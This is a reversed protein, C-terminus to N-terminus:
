DYDQIEWVCVCVVVVVESVESEEESTSDEEEEIRRRRRRRNEVIKVFWGVVVLNFVVLIDSMVITTIALGTLIRIGKTARGGGFQLAHFLGVWVWFGMAEDLLKVGRVIVSPM